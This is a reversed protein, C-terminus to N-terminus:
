CEEPYDDLSRPNLYPRDVDIGNADLRAVLVHFRDDVTAAPRDFGEVIGEAIVRCRSMGFSDGNNPDEALALGPALPKTLAPTAHRLEGSQRSRLGSMVGLCSLLASKPVYVVGSDCRYYHARDRLVKLRFPIAARNLAGTAEAVFWVATSATLNWYLRVVPEEGHDPMTADSVAFYFGPSMELMENPVRVEVPM